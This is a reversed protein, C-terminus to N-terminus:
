EEDSHEAGNEDNDEFLNIINSEYEVKAKKFLKKNMLKLQSAICGEYILLMDKKLEIRDESEFDINEQSKLDEAYKLVLKAAKTVMKKKRMMEVGEYLQQRDLHKHVYSQLTLSAVSSIPKVFKSSLPHTPGYTVKIRSFKAM